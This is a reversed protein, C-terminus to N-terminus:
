EGNSVKKLLDWKENEKSLPTHKFVFSVLDRVSGKIREETFVIAKHLISLLFGSVLSMTIMSCWYYYVPFDPTGFLQKKPVLIHAIFFSAVFLFMFAILRFAKHYESSVKSSAILLLFGASLLCIKDGIAYLFSSMYKFGFPGEADSVGYFIHVFPALCGLLCILTLYISNTTTLYATVIGTM